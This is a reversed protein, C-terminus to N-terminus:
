KWSSLRSARMYVVTGFATVDAISMEWCIGAGDHARTGRHLPAGLCPQLVSPWTLSITDMGLMILRCSSTSAVTGCATLDAIHIDWCHRVASEHDGTGGHLNAGLCLLAESASTLSITDTTPKLLMSSSMSAVTGSAMLRCSLISRPFYVSPRVSLSNKALNLHPKMAGVITMAMTPVMQKILRLIM